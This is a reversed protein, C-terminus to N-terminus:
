RRAACSRARDRHRRRIAVASPASQRVSACAYARRSAVAMPMVGSACVQSWRRLSLRVQFVADDRHAARDAQRGVRLGFRARDARSATFGLASWHGASSRIPVASVTPCASGRCCARRRRTRRARQCRTWAGGARYLLAAADHCQRDRASPGLGQARGVLSGPPQGRPPASSARSRGPWCRVWRPPSRRRAADGDM